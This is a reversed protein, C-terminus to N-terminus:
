GSKLITTFEHVSTMFVYSFEKSKVDDKWKGEIGSYVATPVPYDNIFHGKTLKVKKTM